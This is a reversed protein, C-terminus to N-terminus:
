RPPVDGDEREGVLPDEDRAAGPEEAGEDELPEAGAARAREDRAAAVVVEDLAGGDAADEVVHARVRHDV